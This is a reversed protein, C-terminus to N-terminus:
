DEDDLYDEVDEGRKKLEKIIDQRFDFFKKNELKRFLRETSEEKPNFINEEDKKFDVKEKKIKFNIKYIKEDDKDKIFKENFILIPLYKRKKAVGETYEPVLEEDYKLSYDQKSIEFEILKPYGEKDYTYEINKMKDFINVTEEIDKIFLKIYEENNDSVPKDSKKSENIFTDFNFVHNLDKM